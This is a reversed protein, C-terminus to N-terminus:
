KNQKSIFISASCCDQLYLLFLSVWYTIQFAAVGQRTHNGIFFYLVILKKLSNCLASSSHIFWYTLQHFWASELLFKFVRRFFVYTAWYPCTHSMNVKINSKLFLPLMRITGQSGYRKLVFNRKFSSITVTWGRTRCTSMDISWSLAVGDDWWLYVLFIFIIICFIHLCDMYLKAIGLWYYAVSRDSSSFELM